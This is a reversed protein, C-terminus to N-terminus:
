CRTGNGEAELRTAPRGSEEPESLLLRVGEGKCNAGWAVLAASSKASTDRISSCGDGDSGSMVVGEM